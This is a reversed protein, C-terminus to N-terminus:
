AAATSSVSGSLKVKSSFKQPGGKAASKRFSLVLGSFLDKAATAASGKKSWEVQFDSVVGAVRSAADLAAQGPDTSDWIGGLPMEGNDPLDDGFTKAADAIATTEYVAKEGGYEPVAECGKIEVFNANVKISIKCGASPSYGFAM